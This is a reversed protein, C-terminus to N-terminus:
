DAWGKNGLFYCEVECALCETCGGRKAEEHSINLVPVDDALSLIQPVCSEICIKSECAMCRAHDLTVTGKTVTEFRYPQEVEWGDRIPTANDDTETAEILAQLREVCFEPSTDRGYAEVTASFTGNARHLIKIAQEEANGGIRIVAPVTLPADMFAKVLGRASHFQEQSAVGSGGAYYGDINAQSLIIRAARYVKSAPPNGVRISLIPLAIAM